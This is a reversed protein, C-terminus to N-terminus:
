INVQQNFPLQTLNELSQFNHWSSILADSSCLLSLPTQCCRGVSPSCRSPQGDICGYTLRGKNDAPLHASSLAVFAWSRGPDQGRSERCATSGPTPQPAGAKMEKIKKQTQLISMQSSPQGRMQGLCPHLCATQRDEPKAGARSWQLVFSVDKAGTKTRQVEGQVSSLVTLFFCSPQQSCTM